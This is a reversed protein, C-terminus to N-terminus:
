TPNTSCYETKCTLDRFIVLKDKPGINLIHHHAWLTCDGGNQTYWLNLMTQNGIYIGSEKCSDEEGLALLPFLILSIVILVARKKQFPRIGVTRMKLPFM